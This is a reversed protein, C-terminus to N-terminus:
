FKSPSMKLTNLCFENIEKEVIDFDESKIFSGIVHTGPTSLAKYINESKKSGLLDHMEPIARVDVVQDQNEEDKYYYLSLVPCKVQRLVEPVMTTELLEEMGVLAKISYLTDWYQRALVQEYHVHRQKGIVVSAIEEGWPDNLIRALPDKVRINPSLNVLAFIKDPFSAALKLAMPSGTSTSVVILKECLKSAILMAEKSSEWLNEPNYNELNNDSILGHEALRSLFLNAGFFKAVNRHVPDGEMQSASFGHLYLIGYETKNGVSDAWEIRAQNNPRIPHQAELQSVFADLNKISPVEALENTYVPTTPTPGVLYLAILLVIIIGIVKFFKKM